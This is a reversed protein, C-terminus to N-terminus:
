EKLNITLALVIILLLLLYFYNMLLGNAKNLGRYSEPRTLIERMEDSVDFLMREKGFYRVIRRMKVIDIMSSNDMIPLAFLLLHQLKSMSLSLLYDTHSAHVLEMQIAVTRRRIVASFAFIDWMARIKERAYGLTSNDFLNPNTTYGLIFKVRKPMKDLSERIIRQNFQPSDSGNPGQVNKVHIFLWQRDMYPFITDIAKQLVLPTDFSIILGQQDRSHEFEQFCERM